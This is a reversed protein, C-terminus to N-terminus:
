NNGQNEWIKIYSGSSGVLYKGDSSIDLNNIHQHRLNISNVVRNQEIDKIIIEYNDKEQTVYILYKDKALIDSYFFLNPIFNDSILSPNSIDKMDWACVKSSEPERGIPSRAHAFLTDKLWILQEVRKCLVSRLTKVVRGNQLIQIMNNDNAISVYEGNPSYTIASINTNSLSEGEIRIDANSVMIHSINNINFFKLSNYGCSLDRSGSSVCALEKKIKNFALQGNTEYNTLCGHINLVGNDDLTFFGINKYLFVNLSLAFQGESLSTLSIGRDIFHHKSLQEKTKLDIVSLYSTNKLQINELIVLFRNKVILVSQGYSPDSLDPSAEKKDNAAYKLILQRMVMPLNTCDLRSSPEFDFTKTLAFNFNEIKKNNESSPKLNIGSILLTFFLSIKINIKM